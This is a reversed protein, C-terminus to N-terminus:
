PCATGGQSPCTDGSVPEEDDVCMRWTRADAGTRTAQVCGTDTCLYDWNDENLDLKLNQNINDINDELGTDPYYSDTDIHHELYYFKEASNMQKLSIVADDDLVREKRWSFKPIAITLLIGIIVIVVMIEILTFSKKDM